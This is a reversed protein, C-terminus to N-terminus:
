KKAFHAVGFGERDVIKLLGHETPFVFGEGAQKGNVWQEFGTIQGELQDALNSKLKYLANWIDVVALFGKKNKLLYGDKNGIMFQYQNKSLNQLLWKDISETTQKTIKKNMYTQLKQKLPDPMGTLFDNALKGKNALVQEAKKVLNTPSSLTFENGVRPPIIAVSSQNLAPQGNWPQDDYEHVVVIGVKNTILKGLESSVPIKYTVTTPSFVFFGNQPTLKGASMLDGKFLGETNGAANKLGNWIANIKSYLDNRDKNRSRDYDVWEKPSKPYIGKDPMYKDTIVFKGNINGFYLAIGGDWKISGNSPDAIIAKLDNLTQTAEQIGSFISDEPHPIRIPTKSEILFEVSKM